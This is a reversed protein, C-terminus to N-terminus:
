QPAAAVAGRLAGVLHLSGTILVWGGVDAAQRLAEGLARSPDPEVQNAIGLSTALGQLGALSYGRSQDITTLIALAADQSLVSLFGSADKDAGLAVVAICKGRLEAQSRLDRLVLDLNFPVHAGDLIIPVSRSTRRVLVDFREMRGPLRASARTREDLLWAGVPVKGRNASACNAELSGIHELVLSALATNIDEIRANSPLDSRVVKAGLERAVEHVVGGAPDDPMLTTILLAGEKLIGVKEYAIAERTPGLVETHELEVNTVVAVEANMINTSDFRGGLGVEVVAWDLYAQDFILFAACTLVDFWTASAAPTTTEKIDEYVDLVIELARALQAQDVPHGLVSVRETICALHPSRYAGVRLGARLLGAEILASVSGKGKTGTIHISRFRRHPNGLRESLDLIPELGMRMSRRPMREWNTLRDLRELAEPLDLNREISSM